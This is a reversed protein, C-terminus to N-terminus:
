LTAQIYISNFFCAMAHVYTPLQNFLMSESRHKSLEAWTVVRGPASIDKVYKYHEDIIELLTVFVSEVGHHIVYTPRM